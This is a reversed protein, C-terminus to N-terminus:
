LEPLLRASFHFLVCSLLIFRLFRTNSHAQLLMRWDQCCVVLCHLSLRVAPPAAELAGRGPAKAMLPFVNNVSKQLTDRQQMCLRIPKNNLVDNQARCIIPVTRKLEPEPEPTQWQSEPRRGRGPGQEEM